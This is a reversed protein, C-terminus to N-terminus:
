EGCTAYPDPTSVGTFAGDIRVRGDGGTGGASLTGGAESGEGGVAGVASVAVSAPGILWVTGGAGGGGGGPSANGVWHGDQGRQGNARIEGIGGFGDAVIRM